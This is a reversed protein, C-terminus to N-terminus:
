FNSLYVIILFRSAFYIGHITIKSLQLDGTALIICLGTMESVPFSRRNRECNGRLEKKNHKSYAGDDMIIDMSDM